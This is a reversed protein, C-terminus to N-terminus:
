FVRKDFPFVGEVISAIIHRSEHLISEREMQAWQLKDRPMYVLQDYSSLAYVGSPPRYCGSLAYLTSWMSGSFVEHPLPFEDSISLLTGLFSFAHRYINQFLSAITVGRRDPCIPISQWANEKPIGLAVAALAFFESQTINLCKGWNLVLFYRLIYMIFGTRRGYREFWTKEPIQPFEQHLMIYHFFRMNHSFHNFQVSTAPPLARDDVANVSQQELNHSDTQRWETVGLKHTPLLMGYLYARLPALLEEAPPCIHDDELVVRQWYFGRFMSLFVAPYLGKQIRDTVVAFAYGGNETLGEPPCTLSYFGRSYEVAAGLRKNKSMEKRFTASNNVRTHQRIWEACSLLCHSNQVGVKEAVGELFQSTFDNGAIIGLEILMEEKPFKFLQQVSSPTIIGCMLQKPKRPLFFPKTLGLNDGIDFLDNPIFRCNKFICFDSDDSLVAYAKRRKLLQDAIWYAAEGVPIQIIECGVRRIAHVFEIELLVGQIATDEDLDTVRMQGACVQLIEQKKRLESYYRNKWTDFKLDTESYSSGKGADIYFVLEIGLSKLDSVMKSVYTDVAAYEAGLIGLYKNNKFAGLSKWLNQAIFQEFSYFDVLIEIGRRQKAFHLLEVTETCEAKQELIVSLLGKIGM